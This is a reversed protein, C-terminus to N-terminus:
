SQCKQCYFTSRQAQIIRKIVGKKCVLCKKDERDYVKLDIKFYGKNGDPQYFDQLTTGGAKIAHLLIKKASDAIKFNEKKTLTKSKRTPRIQADFLIENAYINGIGSVFKQDILFSKISVRVLRILWHKRLLKELEKLQQNQTQWLRLPIAQSNISTM